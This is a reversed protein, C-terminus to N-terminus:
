ERRLAEVPDIRAARWAPVAAAAMAVAAVAGLVAAYTAADTAQVGFLMSALWRSAALSLGAGIALGAAALGAARGLVLGMVDRAGAGLAVRVGIEGTRQTVMYNMVGYIGGMALVLALAAFTGSLFTRFRPAAISNAIMDEMTTLKVAMEPNMGRATERVAGALEGAPVAGRVVVQVENAYFPHQELPMYLTPEPATGPSGQRVDGVVGVVTMPKMSVQDLGCVIQRGVPDEGGFVERAVRGSVIVAGTAGYRDEVTFDRGRLLPIGMTGFYGPTTLSWNAEPLKQGAGFVHKGVVAYSGNSGYRGTPLGMVAAAARVGPLRRLAPLLKADWDRGVAVNEALTTAPAHAYMVLIHDARFGMDAAHLAAFSRFFLGAGAALVFSLAIEAVVLANRVRHSGAVVGRASWAARSAHLAPLTGFVMASVGALGVAFALVAPDIRIEEARPLDPPAFHALTGVGWWALAIGVVAAGVALVASEGALMAAIRARSAGLAARVAMERERATARALLLNSVNACAILLVLLVAGLLLYLMSEVPGTLQERLPVAEIRRGRNTKPNAAALAASIRDLDAQAQAATVGARLRALARYNFATHNLNEPVYPAELWIEAGEPFRAGRVVGAITYARDDVQVRQGVARGADGFHRAAFGESVIAGGETLAPVNQGLVRFFDPNVWWIGTFEAAGGAQAGMEGGFYVSIADFVRNSARVEVFDGGPMRPTPRPRGETRTNLSLIREAQPFRLPELLVGNVVTFVATSIGVGLGLMGIALVAFGPRRRLTRAALLMDQLM